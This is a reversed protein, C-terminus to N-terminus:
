RKLYKFIYKTGKESKNSDKSFIAISMQDKWIKEFGYSDKVLSKTDFRFKQSRKTDNITSDSRKEGILAQSELIM